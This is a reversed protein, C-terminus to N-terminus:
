HLDLARMIENTRRDVEARVRKTAEVENLGLEKMTRQVLIQDLGEMMGVVLQSGLSPASLSRTM